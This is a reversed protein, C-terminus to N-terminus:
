SSADAVSGSTPAADVYARLWAGPAYMAIHATGMNGRGHVVLHGDTITLNTGQDHTLTKGGNRVVTVAM